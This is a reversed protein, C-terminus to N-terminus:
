QMLRFYEFPNTAELYSFYAWLPVFIVSLAIAVIIMPVILIHKWRRGEQRLAISLLTAGIVAIAILRLTIDGLVLRPLDAIPAIGSLFALGAVSTALLIMGIFEVWGRPLGPMEQGTKAM